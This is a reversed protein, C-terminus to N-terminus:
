KIKFVHGNEDLLVWEISQLNYVNYGDMGRRRNPQPMSRLLTGTLYWNTEKFSTNSQSQYYDREIRNALKKMIWQAEGKDM